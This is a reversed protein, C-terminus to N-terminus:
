PKQITPQYEGTIIQYKLQVGGILCGNTEKQELTSMIVSNDKITHLPPKQLHPPTGWYSSAKSYKM